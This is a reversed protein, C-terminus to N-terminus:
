FPLAEFSVTDGSPANSTLSTCSATTSAGSGLGSYSFTYSTNTIDQFLCLYGHAATIGFNLKIQCTASNSVLKGFYQGVLNPTGGTFGSITGCSSGTTTAAAASPATVPLGNVSTVTSGSVQVGAGSASNGVAYSGNVQYGLNTAGYANFIGNAANVGGLGTLTGGSSFNGPTDVVNSNSALGSCDTSEYAHAFGPFGPGSSQLFHNYGGATPAADGCGDGFINIQYPATTPSGTITGFHYDSIGKLNASYVFKTAHLNQLNTAGEFDFGYHYVSDIETGFYDNNGSDTIGIMTAIPHLDVFVMQSTVNSAYLGTNCEQPTNGISGKIDSADNFKYCYKVQNGGFVQPYLTSACGTATSTIATIVGSAVTITDTGRSTCPVDASSGTSSLILQTYAAVYSSGGSAVTFTPVGGSVTATIVAGTGPGHSNLTDVNNFYAEYTWAKSHNGSSPHGFEIYHDSGDTPNELLINEIRFQQAGYVQMPVTLFNANVTFNSWDIGALAFAVGSDPQQVTANSIACTQTLISNKKGSGVIAVNPNGPSTVTPELFGICTNTNGPPLILQAGTTGSVMSAALYFACDGNTPTNANPVQYWYAANTGPIINTSAAVALYNTSSHSVASCQPYGVSSSWASQAVGIGAGNVGAAEVRNNVIAPTISAGAVGAVVGASSVYGPAAIYETIQPYLSTPLVSGGPTSDNIVNTFSGGAYLNTVHVNQTRGSATQSIAILNTGCCTGSPFIHDISCNWCDSINISTTSAFSNNREVGVAEIRTGCGIAGAGDGTIDIDPVGGVSHEIQGAQIVASAKCGTGTTGVLSQVWIARGTAGGGAAANLWNDEVYISSSNIIRVCATPCITVNNFAITTNAFNQESFIAGMGITALANGWICAGQVTFQEQTGDTHAPGVVATINATSSVVIGTQAPCGGNGPGLLMSTNDLPFTIDGDTETVTLTSTPDQIFIVQKTPSSCGRTTAALNGTLGALDVTGGGSPLAACAARIYADATTGSGCWSPAGTVGCQAPYLATGGSSGGSGSIVVKGASYSVGPGTINLVTQVANNTGNTQFTPMELSPISPLTGPVYADFSWSSGFPQICPYSGLTQGFNNKITLAYCVNVPQTLSTDPVIASGSLVGAVIPFCLPTQPSFLQGTSTTVNIANGAGDTPSVCFSGTIASGGFVSIHSATIQTNQARASAFVSLCAALLLLSKKM